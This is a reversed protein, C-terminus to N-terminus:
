LRGLGAVILLGAQGASASRRLGVDRVARVRAWPSLDRLGDLAGLAARAQGTLRHASRMLVKRQARVDAGYAGSLLRRPARLIRRAGHGSGLANGAHQRYLVTPVDDLLVTGGAGAVMQCAWWDHHPVGEAEGARAAEHLLAWAAPNFVMAHGGGVSEALAYGFSPPQSPMPAARCRELAEDCVSVRAVWLAPGEGAADLAAQARALKKPLWVDDQDCFALLGGDPPTAALLALFNAAPGRRPGELLTTCSRMVAFRSLITPTDDQSGDDSAVVRVALGEQALLSALQAPLHPAGNLTALLVTARGM